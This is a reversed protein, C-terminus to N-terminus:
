PARSRDNVYVNDRPARRAGGECLNLTISASARELQDRLNRHARKTLQPVFGHFEVSVHFCDLREADLVVAPAALPASAASALTSPTDSM